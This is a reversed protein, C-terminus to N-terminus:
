APFAIPILRRFCFRLLLLLGRSGSGWVQSLMAIGPCSRPLPMDRLVTFGFFWLIPAAIILFSSLVHILSDSSLAHSAVTLWESGFFFAGSNGEMTWSNDFYEQAQKRTVQILTQREPNKMHRSFSFSLFRFM